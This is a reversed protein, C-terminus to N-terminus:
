QSSFLEAFHWLSKPLQLKHCENEDWDVKGVFMKKRFGMHQVFFESVAKTHATGMYVVIVTKEKSLSSQAIEAIKLVTAFDVLCSMYIDILIKAFVETRPTIQESPSKQFAQLIEEFREKCSPIQIKGIDHKRSMTLSKMTKKKLLVTTDSLDIDDYIDRHVAHLYGEFWEGGCDPDDAGKPDMSSRRIKQLTWDRAAMAIRKSADGNCLKAYLNSSWTRPPSKDQKACLYFLFPFFPYTIYHQGDDRHGYQQQPNNLQLIPSRVYLYEKNDNNQLQLLSLADPITGGLFLNSFFQDWTELSQVCKALFPSYSLKVHKSYYLFDSNQGFFGEFSPYTFEDDDGEDESDSDDDDEQIKGESRLTELFLREPNM